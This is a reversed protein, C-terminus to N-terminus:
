KLFCKEGYADIFMKEDFQMKQHWEDPDGYDAFDKYWGHTFRPKHASKLPCWFRETRAGIEVAYAFVGNMYSCYLCNIKELLNLYDLFKRDYIICDSRKVLPISYLPFAVYQYITVCIDLFVAPVFMGYIFPISLIYRVHRWNKPIVYQYLPIKKIKNKERFLDLFIIKKQQFYFGYKESLRDYEERLDNNLAEIKALIERITDRM